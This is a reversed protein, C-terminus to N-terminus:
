KAAEALQKLQQDAEIVSRGIAEIMPPCCANGVCRYAASKTRAASLPSDGGKAWEGLEPWSQLRSCEGPRLRRIGTALFMTDSARDPGGHMSWGSAESARTGKEENTTVTPSPADLLEPRRRVGPDTPHLYQNGVTPQTPSPSDISSASATHGDGGSRPSPAPLDLEAPPHKPDFVVPLANSSSHVAPITTSPSDTIDAVTRADGAFRPNSGGGLVRLGGGPRQARPSPSPEDMSTTEWGRSPDEREMRLSAPSQDVTWGPQDIGGVLPGRSVGVEVLPARHSGSPTGAGLTDSPVDAGLVRVSQPAASRNPGSVALLGGYAHGSAVPQCSPEDSSRPEKPRGGSFRTETAWADLGLVDRVTRWRALRPGDGFMLGQRLRGLVRQEERSPEGVPDIGHERWYTGDIWKARVLEDRSHTPAPWRIAVPGCVLIVRHRRQPVGFDSADLVRWEVVAFRRRFEPVLEHYWFCGPCDEPKPLRGVDCEADAKHALMGAVQEGLLWRPACGAEAMRDLAGFLAPYGNRAGKAGKRKGALSWDQCPCSAWVADIGRGSQHDFTLDEVRALRAPLDLARAVAVADPDFDVCAVHEFGARRLGLSAGGGGAFLDIIRLTTSRDDLDHM